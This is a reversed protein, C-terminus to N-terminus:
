VAECQGRYGERPSSTSESRHHTSELEAGSRRSDLALVLNPRYRSRYRRGSAVTTERQIPRSVSRYRDIGTTVTQATKEPRLSSGMSSRSCVRDCLQEFATEDIDSREVLLPPLPALCRHILGLVTATDFDISSFEFGVSIGVPFRLPFSVSMAIRRCRFRSELKEPESFPGM